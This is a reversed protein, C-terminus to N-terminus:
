YDLHLHQHNPSPNHHPCPGIRSISDVTCFQNSICLLIIKILKRSTITAGKAVKPGIDAVEIATTMPKELIKPSPSKAESCMTMELIKSNIELDRNFDIVM